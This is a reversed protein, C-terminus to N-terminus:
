SRYDANIDIYGHTLDCTFVRAAATGRNIVVRITVDRTQLHKAVPTEDYGAVASGNKAVLTDGFYIALKDRTVDAGSKGVAMVVRGWNADGGAVATKVLPSNAISFAIKKADSKNKAKEITITILKEAGEGDKVIQLALDHCVAQLAARFIKQNKASPPKKDAPAFLLLSDSTSTDSDVTIANFTEDAVDRLTAQLWKKQLPYDTAMFCLMTAMNPAIMGSGKAMGNLHYTKGDIIFKKTAIKPFTDTTAIARAGGLWDSPQLKPLQDAIAGPPLPAGIIGTSAVFVGRKDATIKKAVATATANVLSTGATGTFANAHGANCIVARAHPSKLNQECWLVPASRTTSQTFVGTAIFKHAPSLTMLMIDDRNKYRLGSHCTFIDVGTIAPMAPFTLPALPSTKLSM